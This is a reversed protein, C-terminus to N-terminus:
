LFIELPDDLEAIDSEGFLTFQLHSFTEPQTVDDPGLHHASCTGFKLYRSLFASSYTM